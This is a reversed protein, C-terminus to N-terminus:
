FQKGVSNEVWEELKKIPILIRNGVKIHPIGDKARVLERTKSQGIGLVEAVEKVSLTQQEIKKKHEKIKETLDQTTTM